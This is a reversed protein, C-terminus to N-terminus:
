IWVFYKIKAIRLCFSESFLFFVYAVIEETSTGHMVAFVTCSYYIRISDFGFILFEGNCCYMRMEDLYISHSNNDVSIGFFVSSRSPSGENLAYRIFFGNMMDSVINTVNALWDIRRKRVGFGCRLLDKFSVLKGKTKSFASQRVRTEGGDASNLLVCRLVMFRHCRTRRQTYWVHTLTTFTVRTCHPSVSGIGRTAECMWSVSSHSTCCFARGFELSCYTEIPVYDDDNESDTARAGHTHILQIMRAGTVM